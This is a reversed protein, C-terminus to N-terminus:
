GLAESYNASALVVLLLFVGLKLMTHNKIM